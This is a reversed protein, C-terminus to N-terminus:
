WHYKNTTDNYAQIGIITMTALIGVIMIVAIIALAELM